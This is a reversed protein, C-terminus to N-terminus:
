PSAALSRLVRARVCTSWRIWHGATQADEIHRVQVAGFPAEALEDVPTRNVLGVNENESAINCAFRDLRDRAGSRAPVHATKVAHVVLNARAVAELLQLPHDCVLAEIGIAGLRSLHALERRPALEFGQEQLQHLFPEGTPSAQCILPKPRKALLDVPHEAVVIGRLEGRLSSWSISDSPYELM